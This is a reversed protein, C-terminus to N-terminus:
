HASNHTGPFDPLPPMAVSNSRLGCPLLATGSPPHVAYALIARYQQEGQYTCHQCGPHYALSSGDQIRVTWTYSEGPALTRTQKSANPLFSQAFLPGKPHLANVLTGGSGSSARWAWGASTQTYWHISLPAPDVLAIPAKSNNLIKLLFGPGSGPSVEALYAAKLTVATCQPVTDAKNPSTAHGIRVLVAACLLALFHHFLKHHM